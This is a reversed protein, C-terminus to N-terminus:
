KVQPIFPPLEPTLAEPLIYIEETITKDHHFTLIEVPGDAYRSHVSVDSTNHKANLEDIVRKNLKVTAESPCGVPYAVGATRAEFCTKSTSWLSYLPDVATYLAVTMGTTGHHNIQMMDSKLYTGYIKATLDSPTAVADGTFLTTFGDAKVRFLMSADNADTAMKPALLEITYLFEIEVDSFTMKQGPLPHIRKCEPMYTRLLAPVKTVMSDRYRESYVSEDGNNYIMREITINTGKKCYKPVFSLFAEHHDPSDHTFIWAAIVVKKEGNEDTLLTQDQLFTHIIDCDQTGNSSSCGGDLVIFRGDSLTIIYCLGGPNLRPDCNGVPAHKSYDLTMVALTSHELINPFSHDQEFYIVNSLPNSHVNLSRNHALYSLHIMGREGVCTVFRNGTQGNNTNDQKLSFGAAELSAIYHDLTSPDVNLYRTQVSNDDYEYAAQYTGKDYHPFDGLWDSMTGMTKEPLYLTLSDVEETKPNIVIEAEDLLRNFTICAQSTSSVTHGVVFISEDIV